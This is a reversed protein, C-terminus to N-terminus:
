TRRGEESNQHEDGSGMYQGTMPDTVDGPQPVPSDISASFELAYITAGAPVAIEPAAFTGVLVAADILRDWNVDGGNVHALEDNNLQKEM